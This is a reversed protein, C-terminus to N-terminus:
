PAQPPHRHRQWFLHRQRALHYRLLTVPDDDSLRLGALVPRKFGSEDYNLVTFFGSHSDVQEGGARLLRVEIEVELTFRRVYVVRATMEVLDTAFIPQKFLLRNMALTVVHRNRTFLRAAYTAVRDMWLLIDGGFITGMVNLNRPMFMRRVRVLTEEPGLWERKDRNLPDEVEAVALPPRARAQEQMAVWEATLRRHELAEANLAREADTEIALAPINRDPRRQEDIAVMTVYCRQSPVLERTFPDQRTVDVAVTISSRGVDVVTGELRVLDGHLIPHVLDV